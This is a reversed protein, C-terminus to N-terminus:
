TREIGDRDPRLRVEFWYSVIALKQKRKAEDRYRDRFLQAMLPGYEDRFDSPYAILLLRYIRCSLHANARM